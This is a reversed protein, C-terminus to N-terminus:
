ARRSRGPTLRRYGRLARWAHPLKKSGMRGYAPHHHLLSALVRDARYSQYGARYMLNLYEVFIQDVIEAKEMNLGRAPRVRLLCGAGAAPVAHLDHPGGREEGGGSGQGTESSEEEGSGPRREPSPSRRARQGVPARERARKRTVQFAKEKAAVELASTEGNEKAHGFHSEVIPGESQSKAESLVNLYPGEPPPALIRTRGSKM